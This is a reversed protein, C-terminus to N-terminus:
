APQPTERLAIMLAGVAIAGALAQLGLSIFRYLVVAAAGLGVNV